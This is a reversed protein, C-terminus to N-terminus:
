DFSEVALEDHPRPELPVMTAVCIQHIVSDLKDSVGRLARGLLAAPM